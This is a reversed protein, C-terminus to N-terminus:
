EETIQTDEGECKGECLREMRSVAAELDELGPFRDPNSLFQKLNTLLQENSIGEEDEPKEVVTATPQLLMGNKWTGEIVTGDPKWLTGKGERKGNRWSGRFKEGAATEFFGRGWMEDSKWQGLYHDGNEWYFDGSGHRMGGSWYGVYEGHAYRYSGYGNECNGSVCRYPNDTKPKPLDYRKEGSHKQVKKLQSKQWYGKLWADRFYYTGKGHMRGQVWQGDYKGGDPFLYTGRGNYCDGKICMGRSDQHFMCILLLAALLVTGLSFTKIKVM